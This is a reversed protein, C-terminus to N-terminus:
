SVGTYIIFYIAVYAPLNEHAGGGGTAGSSFSTTQKSPPGAGDNRVILPQTHTHAPIETETLTHTATGGTSGLTHSGSVAIPIRGQVNPINFTTTGNGSGYTTSLVTFLDVYTTRDLAQGQCLKWASNPVTLVPWMKILGVPISSFDALRANLTAPTVALTASSGTDVEVQTALEVVGITTDSATPADSPTITGVTFTAGVGVQKVYQNAGGTASLDVGTGGNTVSKLAQAPFTNQLEDSPIFKPTNSESVDVIVLLDNVTIDTIEALASIKLDAM